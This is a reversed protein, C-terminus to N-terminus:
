EVTGWISSSSGLESELKLFRELKVLIQKYKPCNEGYM